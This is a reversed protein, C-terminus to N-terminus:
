TDTSTAETETCARWILHWQLQRLPAVQTCLWPWLRRHLKIRIGAIAVVDGGSDKIPWWAEGQQDYYVFLEDYGNDGPGWIYERFIERPGSVGSQTQLEEFGATTGSEDVEVGQPTTQAAMSQLQSNGGIGGISTIDSTLTEVIRRYGDYYYRYVNTVGARIPAENRVLRGSGDYTYHRVLDGVVAISGNWSAENVQILRGWADYQYLYTHDFVLNGADDYIPQGAPPGTAPANVGVYTDVAGIQNRQDTQYSMGFVDDTGDANPLAWPTGYGDLNGTRYRGFETPSSSGLGDWNGLADM